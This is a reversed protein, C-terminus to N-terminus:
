HTNLISCSNSYKYKQLNSLSCLANLKAEISISERYRIHTDQAETYLSSNALNKQVLFQINSMAYM